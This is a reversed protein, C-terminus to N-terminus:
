PYFLDTSSSKGHDKKKKYYTLDYRKIVKYNDKVYGWGYKDLTDKNFIFVQIRNENKNKLSSYSLDRQVTKGKNISTNTFNEVRILTDNNSQFEMYLDVNSNNTLKIRVVHKAFNECSTNLIVLGVIFLVTKM